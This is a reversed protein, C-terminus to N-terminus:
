VYVYVGVVCLQAECVTGTHMYVCHVCLVITLMGDYIIFINDTALHSLTDELFETDNADDYDTDLSPRSRTCSRSGALGTCDSTGPYALATCCEM